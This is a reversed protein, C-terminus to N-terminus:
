KHNKLDGKGSDTSNTGISGGKGLPTKNKSRLYLIVGVAVIFGVVLILALKEM